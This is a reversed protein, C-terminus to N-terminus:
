KKKNKPFVLRYPFAKPFVFHNEACYLQMDVSECYSLWYAALFYDKRKYYEPLVCYLMWWTITSCHQFFNCSNDLNLRPDEALFQQHMFADAKINVIDYLWSNQAYTNWKINKLTYELYALAKKAPFTQKKSHKVNIAVGVPLISFIVGKVSLNVLPFVNGLLM